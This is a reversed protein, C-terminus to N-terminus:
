RLLLRGASVYHYAIIGKTLPTFPQCDEPAVQASVCWPATFKADLFIGGTLRLTRLVDLSAEMSWRETIAAARVLVGADRGNDGVAGGLLKAAHRPALGKGERRG